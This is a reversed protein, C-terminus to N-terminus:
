RRAEDTAAPSARLAWTIMVAYSSPGRQVIGQRELAQLRRRVQPTKPNRYDGKLAVWNRVVYTASPGRRRLAEIIKSDLEAAEAQTM